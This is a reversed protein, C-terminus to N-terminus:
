DALLTAVAIDPQADRVRVWSGDTLKAAFCSNIVPIVNM